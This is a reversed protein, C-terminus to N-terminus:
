KICTVLGSIRSSTSTLTSADFSNNELSILFISFNSFCICADILDSVPNLTSTVNHSGSDSGLLSPFATRMSSLLLNSYHSNFLYGNKYFVLGSSECRQCLDQCLCPDIQIGRGYEPMVLQERQTNYQM